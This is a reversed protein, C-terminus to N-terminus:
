TRVVSSGRKRALSAIRGLAYDNERPAILVKDIPRGARLAELVPNKGIILGSENESERRKNEESSM